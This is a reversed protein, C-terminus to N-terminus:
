KSGGALLGARQRGALDVGYLDCIADVLQSQKKVASTLDQVDRAVVQLGMLIERHDNNDRSVFDCLANKMGGMSEAQAKMSEAQNMMATAQQKQADIFPKGFYVALKYVFYIIVISIVVGAAQSALRDIIVPDIGTM